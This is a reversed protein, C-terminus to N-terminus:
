VYKSIQHFNSCECLWQSEVIYIELRMIEGIAIM